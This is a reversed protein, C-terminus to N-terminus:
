GNESEGLKRKLDQFADVVESDLNHELLKRQMLYSRQELLLQECERKFYKIEAILAKCSWIYAGLKMRERILQYFAMPSPWDIEMEELAIEQVLIQANGM